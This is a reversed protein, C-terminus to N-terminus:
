FHQTGVKQLASRAQNRIYDNSDNEMKEEFVKRVEDEMELETGLLQRLVQVAEMRLKANQDYRLVYLFAGIVEPQDVEQRLVELAQQRVAPNEDSKMAAILATRIEGRPSQVAGSGITSIAQLRVGTNRESFLVHALVRQIRPDEVRGRLSVRRGAYFTLEVEDNGAGIQKFQVDQIRVAEDQLIEMQNVSGEGPVGHFGLYGLFLGLLLASATAAVPVPKLLVQISETLLNWFSTQRRSAEDRLRNFLRRRSQLLLEKSIESRNEELKHHMQKLEELSARCAPCQSLHEELEAQQASDLEGYLYLLCREEYGQHSM